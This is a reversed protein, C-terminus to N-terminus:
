PKIRKFGFNDPKPPKPPPAPEPPPKISKFKSPLVPEKKETKSLHKTPTWNYKKDLFREIHDPATPRAARCAVLLNEWIQIADHRDWFTGVVAYEPDLLGLLKDPGTVYVVQSPMLGHVRMYDAAQTATGALVYIRYPPAAFDPM